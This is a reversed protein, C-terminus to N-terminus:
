VLQHFTGRNHFPFPPTAVAGATIPVIQECSAPTTKPCTAPVKVGKSAEIADLLAGTLRTRCRKLSGSGCFAKKPWAKVRRGTVRRLDKQVYGWWGDFFFSRGAEPLPNVNQDVLDVVKAGLSPEFIRRVMPAWLADMLAVAASDDYFGSGTTDRRQSGARVWDDMTKVAEAVRPDPTGLTRRVWRWVETGRLDATAARVSIRGLDHLQLKNKKSKM